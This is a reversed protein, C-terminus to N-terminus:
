ASPLGDVLAALLQRAVELRRERENGQFSRQLRMDPTLKWLSGKQAVLKMVAQPDLPTDDALAISIRVEGLELATARLRRALAKVQMLQALLQVEEPPDGYRDTLESVTEAIDGDNGAQSFRRYFDLRQGVDPLYPEPIFAPVDTNIEPDREITIPEGRLEAVAEALIQTYTDFGVAAIMGSQKAGLLDGAGRIELDHSAV